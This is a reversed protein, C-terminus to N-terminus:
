PNVAQLRTLVADLKVDARQASQELRSFRESTERQFRELERKCFATGSGARWVGRVRELLRLRHQLGHEFSQGSEFCPQPSPAKTHQHQQWLRRLERAQQHDHCRFM